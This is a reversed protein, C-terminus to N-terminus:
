CGGEDPRWREGDDLGFHELRRIVRARTVGLLRAAKAKNGRARRLARRLLEQEVEALFDDLQISERPAPPRSTAQTALDIRPPLDAATVLPGAAAKCAATVIEALEDVNGPWAYVLLRELADEAFGSLQKGGSMNERELFFQALLPIDQRRHLLAPMTIELTSLSFALDERFRDERALDVLRRRATAVTRLNLERITLVGALVRQADASLQDVELLLLTAPREVQLEACSAIFSTITEELLEADLLNCALPALPAAERQGGGFHIARAISERGSGPPGVVLVRSDTTAALRILDRARVLAPHEGIIQDLGFRMGMENLVQRLMAHLDSTAPGSRHPPGPSPADSVDLFVMVGCTADDDPKGLPVFRARRRRITGDDGPWAVEGDQAQGSFSEPPPCLYDPAPREARQPLDSHYDCTRGILQQPEIGLWTVCAANCYVIRRHQDLAYVPVPCEGLLRSLANINSRTRAM